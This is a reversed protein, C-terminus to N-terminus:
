GVVQFEGRGGGVLRDFSLGGRGSEKDRSEIGRGGKLSM